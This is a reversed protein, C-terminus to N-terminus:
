AADRILEDITVPQGAEALADHVLVLETLKWPRKGNLKLSVTSEDVALMEALMRGSINAERIRDKIQM